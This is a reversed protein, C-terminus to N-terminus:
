CTLHFAGVARTRGSCQNYLEAAAGTPRVHVEIGAASLEERLERPVSMMGPSGSGIIVAEPEADLVGQLDSMQLLHSEARWWNDDVRDPYIILDRTYARGDIVMRGFTYDDINPM